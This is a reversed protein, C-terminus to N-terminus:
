TFWLDTGFVLLRGTLYGEVRRRLRLAHHMRCQVWVHELNLDRISTLALSWSRVFCRTNARLAIPFCQVAMNTEQHFRDIMVGRQKCHLPLLTRSWNRNQM